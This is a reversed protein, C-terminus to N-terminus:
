SSIEESNDGHLCSLSLEDQRSLNAVRPRFNSKYMKGFKGRRASITKREKLNRRQRQGQSLFREKEEEKKRRRHLHVYMAAPLPLPLSADSDLASTSPPFIDWGLDWAFSLCPKQVKCILFQIM